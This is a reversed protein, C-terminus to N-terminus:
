DKGRVLDFGQAAGRAPELGWAAVPAAVLERDRAEAQVLEEGVGLGRAQESEAELEVAAVAVVERETDLEQV